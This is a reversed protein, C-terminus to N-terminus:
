NVTKNGAPPTSFGSYTNLDEGTKLITGNDNVLSRWKTFTNNRLYVTGHGTILLPLATTTRQQTFDNDTVYLTAVNTLNFLVANNQISSYVNNKEFSLSSGAATLFSSDSSNGLTFTSGNIDLHSAKSRVAYIFDTTDEAKMTVTNMTLTSTNLTFLSIGSVASGTIHSDSVSVTSHDSDVFSFIRSRSDTTVTCHKLILKARNLIFGTASILGAGTQISSNAVSLSGDTITFLETVRGESLTVKVTDFTGSSGGTGNFVSLRNFRGTSKVTTRNIRFSCKALSILTAQQVPGVYIHVDDFLLSGATAKVAHTGKGNAFIIDCDSLHLTGGQQLLLSTDIGVNNMSINKMLVKGSVITFLPTTRDNGGRTFVTKTSGAKWNSPSFGGYLSINSPIVIGEPLPFEGDTIYVKTRGTKYARELARQLTHLPRSRSGDYSDKGQTSLYIVAKNISFSLSVVSSKNGARNRTYAQITFHSLMGGSVDVHIPKTYVSYPASVGGEQVLKYFVTGGDASLTIVRGSEYHDGQHVGSIRPTGPISRDITFPYREEPSVALHTRRDFAMVALTLQLTEGKAADFTLSDSLEPSFLSVERVPTGQASVEYRLLSNPIRKRITVRGSYLGGKKVGVLLNHKKSSSQLVLAAIPSTNGYNNATYTFFSNQARKQDLSIFVPGTYPIFNDTLWKYYVQSGPISPFSVVATDNNVQQISPSAPVMKLRSITVTDLVQNKSYNGAEDVAWAAITYRLLSNERGKITVPKVYPTGNYMGPITGDHSIRYYLHDKTESYLSFTVPKSTKEDSTIGFISPPLPPKKDIRLTAINPSFSTNGAKDVAAASIQFTKDEGSNVDITISDKLLVGETIYDSLSTRESATIKERCLIWVSSEKDRVSLTVPRNYVAGNTLSTFVPSPPPEKDITFTLVTITGNQPAEGQVSLVKVIFKKETGGPADFHLPRLLRMDPTQRPDAPVSGTDSYQYYLRVHPDPYVRVTRATKYIGGNQIGTIRFRGAAINKSGSFPLEWSVTISRNGSDDVAYAVLKVDKRLTSVPLPQVYKSFVLPARSNKQKLAFYTSGDGQLMVADSVIQLTPAEPPQTDFSTSVSSIGSLNGESDMLMGKITIRGTIGRPIHFFSTQLGIFSTTDPDPPAKGDYSLTYYFTFDEKNSIYLRYTRQDIKTCHIEPKEPPLFNFPLLYAASSSEIGNQFYAAAKIIKSGTKITHPFRITFPGKYLVSYNDPTSGDLTYYVRAQSPGIISVEATKGPFNAAVHIIPTGPKRKDFVYFYRYVGKGKDHAGSVRLPVFKITGEVPNLSFPKTYNLFEEKGKDTDSLRYRYGTGAFKITLADEYVGSEVSSISSTGEEISFRLSKRIINSSNYPLGAVHLVYSGKEKFLIPYRYTTGFKAPDNSGISYRIWKFGAQDIYLLQSNRFTGQVPSYVHLSAAPKKLPLVSFRRVLESSRNGASSVAYARLIVTHMQETQQIVIPSGRWLSFAGKGNESLSFYIRNETKDFRLRVAANYIGASPHVSPVLPITKDISYTLDRKIVTGDASDAASISLMYTRKEGPIATLVLPARYKVKGPDLSSRFSYMITGPVDTTLTLTVDHNYVGPPLSPHIAAACLQFLATFLLLILVSTKKM